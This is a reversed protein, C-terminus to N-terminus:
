SIRRGGGGGLRARLRKAARRAARVDGSVDQPDREAVGGLETCAFVAADLRNPSRRTGPEWTTQELELRALTGIHHVKGARYMAAVPTARTEKARHTVVERIYITGPKRTPFAKTTDPLVEIRMGALRAHVKLLDRAHQGVHNREVVVGAADRRCERVVIDAYVEPPMRESLDDLYIHGDATRYGKAIGVEDAYSQGSLAPDLGLVICTADHPADSARHTDIWDQEWLAGAAEAFVRGLIEEEYARTGVGYKRAEDAIYRRTLLPNDFMTGRQLRHAEPDREHQEVLFQILDNKGSSTTDWFYQPKAGVRCATTIDNFAKRRTIPNWRVIETAWVLDFNDGSSPREIESTAPQAIVGNAWRVGGAYEEARCWAPSLSVLMPVQVEQVRHFTPAILAPAQCEGAEVRRNIEHAIAYTKGYGRGAISGYSRWDGRPVRQDERLSAEHEHVLIAITEDDLTDIADPALVALAHLLSASM